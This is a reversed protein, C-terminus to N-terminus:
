RQRPVSGPLMHSGRFGHAGASCSLCRTFPARGSRGPAAVLRGAHGWRKGATDSAHISMASTRGRDDQPAKTQGDARARRTSRRTSRDAGSGGCRLALGGNLPNRLRVASFRQAVRPGRRRDDGAHGQHPCVADPQVLSHDEPDAVAASARQDATMQGVRGRCALHGRPNRPALRHRRNPAVTGDSEGATVLRTTLRVM